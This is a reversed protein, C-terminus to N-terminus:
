IQLRMIDDYAQLAKNRFQVLMKLSIDAEEVAIMVEHLNKAEGSNLKNIAANSYQEAETAQDITSKIMKAFGSEAKAVPHSDPQTLPLPTSNIQMNIPNM